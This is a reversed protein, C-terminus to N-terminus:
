DGSDAPLDDALKLHTDGPVIMFDRRDRYLRARNLVLEDKKNKPDISDYDVMFWYKYDGVFLYDLELSFFQGRIGESAKFRQVVEAILDSQDDKVRLVYEHPWTERYTKAERWPAQAILTSLRTM